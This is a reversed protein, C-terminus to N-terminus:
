LYSGLPQHLPLCEAMGRGGGLWLQKKIPTPTSWPTLSSILSLSFINHYNGCRTSEQNADIYNHKQILDDSIKHQFTKWKRSNQLYKQDSKCEQSKFLREEIEEMRFTALM